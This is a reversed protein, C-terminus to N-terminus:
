RIALAVLSTEFGAEQSTRAASRENKLSPGQGPQWWLGGTGAVGKEPCEKTPGGEQHQVTDRHFEEAM